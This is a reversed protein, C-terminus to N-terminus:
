GRAILKPGYSPGAGEAGLQEAKLLGGYPASGAQLLRPLSESHFRRDRHLNTLSIRRRRTAIIIRGAGFKTPQNRSVESGTGRHM